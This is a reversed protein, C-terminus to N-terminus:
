LKEWLTLTTSVSVMNTLFFRTPADKVSDLGEFMAPHLPHKRSQSMIRLENPVAEVDSYLTDTKM